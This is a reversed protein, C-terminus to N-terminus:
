DQFRLKVRDVGHDRANLKELEAIPFSLLKQGIGARHKYREYIVNGPGNYILRHNGNPFMKIGLYLDPVTTFTLKDKFTAKIQINRNTVRTLADYHPRSKPYPSESTGDLIIDFERAVIVEGIDGVLRGDITFRRHPYAAKLQAIGTNIHRLAQEIEDSQKM